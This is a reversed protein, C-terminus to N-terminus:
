GEGGIFRTTLPAVDGVTVVAAQGPVLVVERRSPPAGTAIVDGPELITDHSLRSILEAVSFLMESTNGSQVIEGDVELRVDLDVPHDIVSISGGLAGFGPLSKARAVGKGGDLLERATLDNCATIGAVVSWADNAGVRHARAGIVVALEADPQVRSRRPLVVSSGPGSLSSRSRLYFAPRDPREAARGAYNSGVLWASPPQVPAQLAVDTSRGTVKAEALRARWASDALFTTLDRQSIDLLAIEGDEIRGIGHSTTVLNM